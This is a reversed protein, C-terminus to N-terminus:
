PRRSFSVVPPPCFPRQNLSSLPSLPSPLSSPSLPPPLPPSSIRICPPSCASYNRDRKEWPLPQPSSSPFSSPSSNPPPHFSYFFLFPSSPILFCSYCSSFLLLIFTLSFGLLPLLSYIIIAIYKDSDTIVTFLQVLAM